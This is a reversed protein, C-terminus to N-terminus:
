GLVAVLVLKTAVCWLLAPLFMIIVLPSRYVTANPKATAATPMPPKIEKEGSM